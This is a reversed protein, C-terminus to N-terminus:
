SSEGKISALERKLAENERRLENYDDRAYVKVITSREDALETRCLRLQEELAEAKRNRFLKFVPKALVSAM